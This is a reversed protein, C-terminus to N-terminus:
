TIGSCRAALLPDAAMQAELNILITEPDSLPQTFIDSFNLQVMKSFNAHVERPCGELYAMATLYEGAGRAMDIKLNDRTIKVFRYQQLEM